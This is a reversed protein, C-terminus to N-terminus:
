KKEVTIKEIVIPTQPVDGMRTKANIGTKVAAMKQVIDFGEIVKGFVAYGFETGRADLNTNNQLNIYFQRTASHPASTRAMALTAQSNSLGNKSENIVEGYPVPKQNFDKDFGGGQVVFGPIIRHFQTGIYSGDDVYKLFNEVSKSAKEPYLEVKFTGMSTDVDVIPNAAFASFAALATAAITTKLLTRM